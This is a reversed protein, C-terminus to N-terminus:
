FNEIIIRDSEPIEIVFTFQSLEDICEQQEEYASDPQYAELAEKATEYESWNCRIAVQDFEQPINEDEEWQELYEALAKAGEYSFGNDKNDYLRHTVDSTRLNIFM